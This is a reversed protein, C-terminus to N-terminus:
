QGYPGSLAVYVQLCSPRASGLWRTRESSMPETANRVLTEMWAAGPLVGIGEVTLRAPEGGHEGVVEGLVERVLDRLIDGRGARVRRASDGPSCHPRM